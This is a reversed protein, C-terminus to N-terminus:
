LGSVDGKAVLQKSLAPLVRKLLAARIDAAQAAAAEAAEQQGDVPEDESEQGGGKGDLGDAEDDLAESVQGAAAEATDTDPAASGAVSAAAAAEAPPLFHFADIIACVARVVGQVLRCWYHKNGCSSSSLTSFMSRWVIASHGASYQNIRCGSAIRAIHRAMECNQQQVFVPLACQRVTLQM